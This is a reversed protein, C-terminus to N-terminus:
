SVKSGRSYPVKVTSTSGQPKWRKRVFRDLLAERIIMNISIRREKAEKRIEKMVFESIETRFSVGDKSLSGWAAKRRPFRERDRKVQHNVSNFNRGLEVAIDKVLWGEGWLKAAKKLESTTWESM